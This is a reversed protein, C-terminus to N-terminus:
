RGADPLIEKRTAEFPGRVMDFRLSFDPMEPTRGAAQLPSAPPSHGTRNVTWLRGGLIGM